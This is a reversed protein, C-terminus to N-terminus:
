ETSQIGNRLLQQIEKKGIWRHPPNGYISDVVLSVASQDIVGSSTTMEGAHSEGFTRIADHMGNVTDPLNAENNNYQIKHNQITQSLAGLDHLFGDPMDTEYAM